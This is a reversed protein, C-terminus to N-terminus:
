AGPGCSTGCSACFSAGPELQGGCKSCFGATQQIVGQCHPCRVARSDIAERCFPCRGDPKAVIVALVLGIPGLLAGILFWLCGSAGRSNAVVATTIAFVLWLGFGFEM